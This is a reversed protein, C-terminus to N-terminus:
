RRVTTVHGIGSRKQDLRNHCCQTRSASVVVVVVVVTMVVVTVTVNSSVRVTNGNARVNAGREGNLKAAGAAATAHRTRQQQTQRGLEFVVLVSRCQALKNAAATAALTQASQIGLHTGGGRARKQTRGNDRGLTAAASAAARHRCRGGIDQRTDRARILRLMMLARAAQDLRQAARVGVTRRRQEIRDRRMLAIHALNASQVRGKHLLAPLLSFLLLLTLLVRVCVRMSVVLVTLVVMMMMGRRGRNIAATATSADAAAIDGEAVVHERNQVGLKVRHDRMTAMVVMVMMMVM